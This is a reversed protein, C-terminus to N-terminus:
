PIRNASALDQFVFLAELCICSFLLFRRRTTVIFKAKLGFPSGALEWLQFGLGVCERIKLSFVKPPAPGLFSQCFCRGLTVTWFRTGQKFNQVSKQLVVGKCKTIRRHEESVRHWWNRGVYGFSTGSGGM